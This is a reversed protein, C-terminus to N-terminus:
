SVRVRGGALLRGALRRDPPLRCIGKRLRLAPGTSLGGASQERLWMVKYLPYMGHAPCGTERYLSKGTSMGAVARAQDVARGDAWTIAGTLPEDQGDVAIVGHLAGGVSMGDCDTPRAGSRELGPARRPDDRESTGAPGAGALPEPDPRGHYEGAGFGLVTGNEDVAATKCSGTGLDIGLFWSSSKM